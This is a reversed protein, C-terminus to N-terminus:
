IGQTKVLWDIVNSLGVDLCVSLSKYFDHHMNVAENGNNFLEPTDFSELATKIRVMEPKQDLTMMGM